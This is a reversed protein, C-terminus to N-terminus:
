GGTRPSEPTGEPTGDVTGRATGEATEGTTGGATGEATEGAPSEEGLAQDISRRLDDLLEAAPRLDFFVRFSDAGVVGKFYYGGRCKVRFFPRPFETHCEIAGLPELRRLAAASLAEDLVVERITSSDFCDEVEILARVRM